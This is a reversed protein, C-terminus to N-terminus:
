ANVKYEIKLLDALKEGIMYCIANIHASTSVPIVSADAVRLKKVGHVRLQADVVDGLSPDPGMRCSAVPHNDHGTIYRIACYWYKRSMYKYKGLCQKIPKIELKADIRRFAKTKILKKAFLIAQYATEIDKGEPDSLCNSDILPYVFPSSSQLRVTGSSKTHLLTLYMTFSSSSDVAAIVRAVDEKWKQVTHLAYSTDNSHYFGIELDPYNPTKEVPTQYYGVGQQTLATSLRGVGHLYNEVQERLSPVPESLNSSFTIGYMQLHDYLQSGVELNQIIPVGIEQLHKRPGIGSLMLIQPSSISGASVIVEKSAAVKYAKGKHTFILGQAEKAENIIIRTVFSETLVKLNQRDLVPKLFATGSDQRKGNKVNLQYPSVGLLHAGNCDTKNYGLEESAQFFVKCQESRPEPYSVYLPGGKGHYQMDAVADPANNHFDESMKFYPLVDKYCWGSNGKACWNDFDISAGRAYILANLLSTGGVGKGRPYACRNEKM